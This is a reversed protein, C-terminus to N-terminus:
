APSGARSSPPSDSRASCPDTRRPGAATTTPSSARRARGRGRRPSSARSGSTSILGYPSRSRSTPPTASSSTGSSTAVWAPRTPGCSSRRCSSPWSRRSTESRRRRRVARGRCAVLLEQGRRVGARARGAGGRAAPRRAGVRAGPDVASRPDGAGGHDDLPGGQAAPRRPRGANRPAGRRLAPEGRVHRRHSRPRHRPPRVDGLLNDVLRESEAGTLPDLVIASAEVAGRAGAAECTWCSLAPSASSCSRRTGRRRPSRRSSTSCRRSPGSFTTWSSFSRASPRLSRWHKAHM